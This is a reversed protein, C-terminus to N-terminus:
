AARETPPKESRIVPQGGEEWDLIGGAFDRVNTYGLQMLMKAATPSATCHFNACYVIIEDQMGLLQPALDRLTNLPINIAGPLHVRLFHEHSLVDILVFREGRQMKQLLEDRTIKNVEPEQDVM